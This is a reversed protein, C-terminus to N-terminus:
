PPPEAALGRWVDHIDGNVPGFATVVLAGRGASLYWAYGSFYRRRVRGDRAITDYWGALVPARGAPFWPTVGVARRVAEASTQGSSMVEPPISM